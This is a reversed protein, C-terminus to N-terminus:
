EEKKQLAGCKDCHTLGALTVGKCVPCLVQTPLIERWLVPYECDDTCNALVRVARGESFYETGVGDLESSTKGIQIKKKPLLRLLTRGFPM